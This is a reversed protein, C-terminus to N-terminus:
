RSFRDYAAGLADVLRDLEGVADAPVGEIVDGVVLVAVVEGSAVV